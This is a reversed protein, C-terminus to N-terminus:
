QMGSGPLVNVEGIRDFSRVYSPGDGLVLNGYEVWAHAVFTGSQRRGGVCVRAGHIGSRELMRTLAIARVLCSVRLPGYAAARHVAVGLQRARDAAGLQETAASASVSVLSGRARTWVIGQAVMLAAQARLLDRWEGPTLQRLKALFHRPM